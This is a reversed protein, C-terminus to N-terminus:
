IDHYGIWWKAQKAWIHLLKKIVIFLKQNNAINVKTWPHTEVETTGQKVYLRYSIDSVPQPVDTTYQKRASM